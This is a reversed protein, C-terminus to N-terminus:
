LDVGFVYPADPNAMTDPANPIERKPKYALCEAEQRDNAADYEKFYAVSAAFEEDTIEGNRRLYDREHEQCRPFYHTDLILYKCHNARYEEHCPKWWQTTRREGYKPVGYFLWWGFPRTGPQQEIWEVTIADGYYAWAERLVDISPQELYGRGFELCRRVEDTLGRFTERREPRRIQRNTPM